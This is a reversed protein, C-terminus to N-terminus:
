NVSNKKRKKVYNVNKRKADVVSKKQKVNRKRLLFLERAKDAPLQQLTLEIPTAVAPENNAFLNNQAPNFEAGACNMDGKALLGLVTNMDGNKATIDANSSTITHTVFDARRIKDIHTINRFARDINRM